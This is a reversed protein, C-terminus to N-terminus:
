LKGQESINEWSAESNALASGIGAIVLCIVTIGGVIYWWHSNDIQNPILSYVLTGVISILCTATGLVIALWLVPM